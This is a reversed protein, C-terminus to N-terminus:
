SPVEDRVRVFLGDIEFEMGLGGAAVNLNSISELVEQIDETSADGPDIYIELPALERTPSDGSPAEPERPITATMASVIEEASLIALLREEGEIFWDPEVSPWLPGLERMDIMDGEGDGSALELLRTFDAYAALIVESGFDAAETAANARAAAVEACEVTVNPKVAAAAEAAAGAAEAAAAADTANAAASHAADAAAYAADAAARDIAAPTPSPSRVYAIASEIATHVARVSEQDAVSLCYLPEVRQACRIAYAVCGRQTLRRLDQRTPLHSM